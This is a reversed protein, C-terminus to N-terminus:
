QAGRKATLVTTRVIDPPAKFLERSRERVAEATPGHVHAELAADDSMTDFTAYRGPGLKMAFFTTTGPERQIGARCEELFAEVEAEKGPKAEFTSWVGHQDM